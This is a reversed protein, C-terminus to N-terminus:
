TNLIGGAAVLDDARQTSLPTTLPNSVPKLKTGGYVNSTIGDRFLPFVPKEAMRCRWCSLILCAALAFGGSGNKRFGPCGIRLGGEWLTKIMAKDRKNGSSDAMAKIEEITPLTNPNLPPNKPETQKIWYTEQPKTHKTEDPEDKNKVWYHFTKVMKLTYYKWYVGWDKRAQVANVLQEFDKREAKDFDKKGLMVAIARLVNLNKDRHPKSESHNKLLMKRKLFEDYEFILQKNRESIKKDNLIRDKAQELRVDLNHIDIEVIEKRM